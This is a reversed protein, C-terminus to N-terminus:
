GKYEKQRAETQLESGRIECNKTLYNKVNKKVAKKRMPKKKKKTISKRFPSDYMLQSIERFKVWLSDKSFISSNCSGNSSTLKRKKVRSKIHFNLKNKEIFSSERSTDIHNVYRSHSEFKNDFSIFDQSQQFDFSKHINRSLRSSSEGFTWKPEIVEIIPIKIKSKNGNDVIKQNAQEVNENLFGPTSFSEWSSEEVAWSKSKVLINVSLNKYKKYNVKNWHDDYDHLNDQLNSGSQEVLNYSPLVKPTNVVPSFYAELDIKWKVTSNSDIQPGFTSSSFEFQQTQILDEIKRYYQRDLGDIVDRSDKRVVSQINISPLEEDSDNIIGDDYDETNSPSSDQKSNLKILNLEFNTQSKKKELKRSRTKEIMNRLYKHFYQEEQPENAYEFDSIFEPDNGSSRRKNTGYNSKRVFSENFCSPDKGNDLNMFYVSLSSDDLNIKELYISARPDFEKSNKGKEKIQNNEIKLDTLKKSFHNVLTPVWPAQYNRNKVDDWNISKFFPHKMIKDVSSPRDEKTRSLWWKLLHALEKSCNFDLILRNHMIMTDMLIRDKSYHPPFNSKMEHLLWGFTYYDITKNHTDGLLMEPSMYDPSGWFTENQDDHSKVIKALGFDALKLRGNIDILVNEPKLDRYIINKDHMTKLMLLIEAGYIRITDEDLEEHTNLLHYLSGGICLETVFHVHEKTQFTWYLQVFKGKNEWEYWNKIICNNHGSLMIQIDRENVVIRPTILNKGIDQKNMIKIAYLMGSDKKRACVVKSYGGRGIMYLFEFDKESVQSHQEMINKLFKRKSHGIWAFHLELDLRDPLRDLLLEHQTLYYDLPLNFGEGKIKLASILRKNCKSKRPSSNPSSTSSNETDSNSLLENRKNLYGEYMRTVESHLWGWTLEQPHPISIEEITEGDPFHVFFHRTSNNCKEEESLNKLLTRDPNPIEKKDKAILRGNKKLLM